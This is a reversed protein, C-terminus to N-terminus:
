KGHSVRLIKGDAQAIEAEPMGGRMGEPISGEVYWVGKILKVRFPRKEEISQQGYIPTWVAEAIRIATQEDPVFGAEPVFHHKGERDYFSSGEAAFAPTAFALILALAWGSRNFRM